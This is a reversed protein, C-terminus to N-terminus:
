FLIKRVVNENRDTFYITGPVGAMGVPTNLLAQVADGDRTTAQDPVGVFTTVNRTSEIRRVVHNGTDAAYLVGEVATIGAPSSFLASEGSGDAFGATGATGAFTIVAVNPSGTGTVRRIAHNGTDAVYLTTALSAIVVAIGEPNNFRATPSIGGGSGDASGPNGALGALTTVEGSPTVQRITHNGTDAVFLNTGDTAIGRPANFRAATGAGDASGASGALGALLTV